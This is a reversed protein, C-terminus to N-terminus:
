HALLLHHLFTQAGNKQVKLDCIEDIGGVEIKDTAIVGIGQVEDYEKFEINSWSAGNDNLWHLFPPVLSM